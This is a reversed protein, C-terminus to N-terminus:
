NYLAYTLYIAHYGVDLEPAIAPADTLDAVSRHSGLGITGEQEAGRSPHSLRRAMRPTQRAEAELRFSQRSRGDAYELKSFREDRRAVEALTLLAPMAKATEIDADLLPRWAAPRFKM